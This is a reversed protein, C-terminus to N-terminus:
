PSLYNASAIGNLACCFANFRTIPYGVVSAPCCFLNRLPQVMSKRIDIKNEISEVIFRAQNALKASEASLMGVMYDKRKEYYLLRMSYFEELIEEAKSYRRLCGESDFLVQVHILGRESSSKVELAVFKVVYYHFIEGHCKMANMANEDKM